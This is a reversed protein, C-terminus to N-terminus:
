EIEPFPAPKWKDVNKETLDEIQSEMEALHRAVAIIAKNKSQLEQTRALQDPSPSKLILLEALEINAMARKRPPMITRQLEIAKNGVFHSLKLKKEEITENDVIEYAVNFDDGDQVVSNVVDPHSSPAPYSQFKEPDAGDLHKTKEVMTMHKKHSRLEKIHENCLRQFASEHEETPFFTKDIKHM